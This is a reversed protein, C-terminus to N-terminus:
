SVDCKWYRELVNVQEDFTVKGSMPFPRTFSVKGDGKCYKLPERELSLEKFHGLM